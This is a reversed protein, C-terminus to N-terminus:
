AKLCIAQELLNESTRLNGQSTEAIFNLHKQDLKIGWDEAIKKLKQKIFKTEVPKFPLLQCRSKVTELLKQPDTTILMIVLYPPPEELLGLLCNQADQTLSHAEDIIYTKYRSGFPAFRAKFCIDKIDEIGRFRAGDLELTDFHEGRTILKCNQCKGCPEGTGDLQDCNMASALVRATTTKGSGSQGFLLYSHGFNGLKAQKKLIEISQNQGLIEGFQRPRYSNYFSNGRGNM